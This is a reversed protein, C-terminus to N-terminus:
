KGGPSTNKAAGCLDAVQSIHTVKFTDSSRTGSVQAEHGLYKAFYADDDSGPSQLHILQSSLVDRLVYHGNQEDVCGTLSQQAVPVFKSAPVSRSAQGAINAAMCFWVGLLVIRVRM